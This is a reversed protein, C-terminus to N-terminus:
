AGGAKALPQEFIWFQDLKDHRCRHGQHAMAELVRTVAAEELRRALESWPPEIEDGGVLVRDANAVVERFPAGRAPRPTPPGPLALWELDTFDTRQELADVWIHCPEGALGAFRQLGAELGFLVDAGTGTIRILAANPARAKLHEDAWARDRPPGWPHSWGSASDGWLHVSGRWGRHAAAALVLQLWAIVAARHDPTHVLLTVGPKQPRLATLLWFLDRRFTHRQVVAADILDVADIDRALAELCLEEATRLEGQAATCARWLQSLRAHETSLRALEAGPLASKGDSGATPTFGGAEVKPKRAATALTAQLDGIRHQVAQAAALALERDTERRLEGLALASKV